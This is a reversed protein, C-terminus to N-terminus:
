IRNIVIDNADGGQHASITNQKLLELVALFTVVIDTRDKGDILDHFRLQSHQQLLASVALIKEKLTIAKSIAAKPIRIVTRVHQLVNIYTRELLQKTISHPPSFEVIELQKARVPRAVMFHKQDIINILQDSADRFEKYMKLHDTLQQASDDEDAELFPLLARSKIYILRTAIVLFDALEEPYLEEIQDLHRIFSEAIEALSIETIELERQEILELLLDLPGQFKELEVSYTHDSSAAPTPASTTTATADTM